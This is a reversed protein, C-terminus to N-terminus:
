LLTLAHIVIQGVIVAALILLFLRYWQIKEKRRLQYNLRNKEEILSSLKDGREEFDFQMTAMDLDKDELTEKLTEVQKELTAIRAKYIEEGLQKRQNMDTSALSNTNERATGRM